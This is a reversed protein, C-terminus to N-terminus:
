WPEWQVIAAMTEVKMVTGMAGKRGMAAAIGVRVMAGMEAVAAVIQVEMMTGIDEM